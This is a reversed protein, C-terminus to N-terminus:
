LNALSFFLYHVRDHTVQKAAHMSFPDLLLMVQTVVHELGRWLLLDILDFRHIDKSEHCLM